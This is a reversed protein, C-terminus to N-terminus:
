CSEWLFERGFYLCNFLCLSLQLCLFLSESLCAPSLCSFDLTPAEKDVGELINRFGFLRAKTGDEGSTGGKKFVFEVDGTYPVKLMKAFSLM